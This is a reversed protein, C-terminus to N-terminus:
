RKIRNLDNTYIILRVILLPFLAVYILYNSYNFGGLFFSLTKSAASSETINDSSITLSIIDYIIVLINIIFVTL